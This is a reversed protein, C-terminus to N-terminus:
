KDVTAFSQIYHGDITVIKQPADIGYVKHPWLADISLYPDYDQGAQDTYYGQHASTVGVPTNSYDHTYNRCCIYTTGGGNINGCGLDNFVIENWDSAVWPDVIGYYVGTFANYDGTTLTDGQTGEMACVDYMTGTSDTHGRIFLSCAGAAAVVGSTDFMYFGRYIMYTDTLSKNATGTVAHASTSDVDTPTTRATAWSANSGLVYGDATSSYVIDADIYYPTFSGSTDISTLNKKTYIWDGGEKVLSHTINSDLIPNFEQDLYVPPRIRFRFKKSEASFFDFNKGTPKVVLGTLDLKLRIEFNRIPNTVKYLQKVGQRTNIITMVGTRIIHPEIRSPEYLDVTTPANDLRISDISFELQEKGEEQETDPRIGLYKRKNGSRKIGVSCVNNRWVYISERNPTRDRHPFLEIPYLRGRKDKFFHPNHKAYCLRKISGDDYEVIEQTRSLAMRRLIM